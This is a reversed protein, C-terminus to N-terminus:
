PYLVNYTNKYLPISNATPTIQCFLKTNVNKEHSPFKMIPYLSFKRQLHPFWFLELSAMKYLISDSKCTIKNKDLWGCM